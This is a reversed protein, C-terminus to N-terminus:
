FAGLAFKVTLVCAPLYSPSSFPQGAPVSTVSAGSLALVGGLSVGAASAMKQAQARADSILDALSCAQSQQAQPSLQTGAVGFSITLGNNKQANSKQLASLTAITSKMDAISAPLAFSWEIQTVPQNSRPDYQQVTSIGAFNAATIGSGELAAVAEDRTLTLPGDVSVRFLLQDPQVNTNRTATVTVSNSTLQGFVAPLLTLFAVTFRLM